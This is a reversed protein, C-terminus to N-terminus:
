KILKDTEIEDKPFIIALDKWIEIKFISENFWKHLQVYCITSEIQFM